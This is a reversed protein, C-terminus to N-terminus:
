LLFYRRNLPVEELPLPPLSQRNIVIEATRPDIDIQPNAQNYLMHRKSVRRTGTVPIARRRTPLRRQFDGLAAASVFNASLSAAALGSGGWHPAYVLPESQPISANGDGLAGWAVFGGKIVLEPKVGFFEPKWLVIDAIKGPELSGVWRDIGHARAPNITYKALYQLIRPNDHPATDGQLIKMQHALQWTRRIVEGIRGMGQSDSNIISIAGLEHLFSEARMTSDRIRDAIM